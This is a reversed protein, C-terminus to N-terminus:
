RPARDRCPHPRRRPRRRRRDHLFRRRPPLQRHPTQITGRLGRLPPAPRHAAAHSRLPPHLRHLLRRPGPPPPQPPPPPHPRDAHDLLDLVPIGAISGTDFPQGGSTPYFATRDLYVINGASEVIRSTFDRLYSDTYYLRETM